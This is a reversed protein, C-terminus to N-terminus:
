RDGFSQGAGDTAALAPMLDALADLSIDPVVEDHSWPRGRHLWATRIGIKAPGVVDNIASDGVMWLTEDSRRDMSSAAPLPPYGCAEIAIDFLRRDPKKIDHDGSVVVADVLPRLGLHEVKAHQQGSSGNSVIALTWGADRFTALCALAGDVATTLEVVRKRYVSLLEDVPPALGYRERIAGFVTARDAYGDNDAALIWQGAEAPLCYEACFEDVWAAVAAARDALTNDLDFMALM